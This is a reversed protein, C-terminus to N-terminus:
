LMLILMPRQTAISHCTGIIARDLTQYAYRVLQPRAAPPALPAKECADRAFKIADEWLGQAHFFQSDGVTLSSVNYM